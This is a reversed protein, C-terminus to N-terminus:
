KSSISKIFESLCPYEKKNSLIFKTFSGEFMDKKPYDRTFMYTAQVFELNKHLIYPELSGRFMRFEITKGATDYNHEKRNLNIMSYHGPGLNRKEKALMISKDYDDKSIQCYTTPGRGAIKDVFSRNTPNYIFQILKYIQLSTWAAKTTHVHLGVPHRGDEWRDAVWGKSKLFLLMNTWKDKGEKKYWDWTYPFSAIEIGDNLSGDKMCYIYDKGVVEKVLLAMTSNPIHSNSRETELEFGFFLSSDININKENSSYNFRRNIPKFDYSNLGREDELCYNCLYSDSRVLEKCGMTSCKHFYSACRACYKHYHVKDNSDRSYPIHVM